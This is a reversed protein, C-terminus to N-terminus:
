VPLGFRALMPRAIMAVLTAVFITGWYVGPNKPM